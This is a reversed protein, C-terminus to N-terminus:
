NRTEPITRNHNQQSIENGQRHSYNGPIWILLDLKHFRCRSNNEPENNPIAVIETYKTFADTITLKYKDVMGFSKFPGFLNMQIGQNPLSCQPM